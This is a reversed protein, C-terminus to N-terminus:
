VVGAAHGLLLNTVGSMASVVVAVPRGRSAEAAISAARSFAAGGGVSTGGFKIVLTGGNVQERM